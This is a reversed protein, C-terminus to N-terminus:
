FDGKPQQVSIRKWKNTESLHMKHEQSSIVRNYCLDQIFNTHDIVQIKWVMRTVLVKNTIM